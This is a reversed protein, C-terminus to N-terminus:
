HGCARQFCNVSGDLDISKFVAIWEQQAIQGDQNTDFKQIMFQGQKRMGMGKGGGQGENQQAYVFAMMFLVIMLIGAVELFRKM